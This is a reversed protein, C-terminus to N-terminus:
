ATSRHMRGVEGHAARSAKIAYLASDAAAFLTALSTGDAPACAMGASAGLTVRASGIAFPPVLAALLRDVLPALAAANSDRLLLAFEDGGLRAIAAQNGAVLRLRAGIQVLLEDGAAHGHRDNVAKFSDLDILALAPCARDEAFAAEAEAILARRNLLGTLPDTHAQERLQHKLMLLDILQDHQGLILRALFATAILVVSAAIIDMRNGLALLGASIPVIGLLLITVTASRIASLCFATTLSGMAMFLPYYSQQAPAALMWSLLCWVSCLGAIGSSIWILKGIRERAQDPTVAQHQRRIWWVMRAAGATAVFLPIGLRIIWPADAAAALMAMSIVALLTIYLIPIQTTLRAYRLLALEDRIEHPVSPWLRQWRSAPILM